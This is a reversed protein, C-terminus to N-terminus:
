NLLSRNKEAELEAEYANVAAILTENTYGMARLKAEIYEWQLQMPTVM